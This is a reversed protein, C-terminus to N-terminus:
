PSEADQIYDDPDFPTDAFVVMSAGGARYSQRAWVPPEILLAPTAEDLVVHETEGAHRLEIEISGAVRLLLQRGRRHGHGGRVAGDPPAVVSFARVPSFDLGALDVPTLVGRPDRLGTAEVFRAKGSFLSRQTMVWLEPICRDVVADPDSSTM